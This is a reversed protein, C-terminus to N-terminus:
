IEKVLRLGRGGDIFEIADLLEHMIFLGYGRPAGAPPASVAAPPVFGRGQHWIEATLRGRDCWCVVVLTPGGAHEVCNALAEGSALEFGSLDDGHL